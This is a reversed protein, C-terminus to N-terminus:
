YYAARLSLIGHSGLERAPLQGLEAEELGQGGLELPPV